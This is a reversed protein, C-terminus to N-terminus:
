CIVDLNKRYLIYVITFADDPVLVPGRVSGSAMSRLRICFRRACRLRLSDTQQYISSKTLISVTSLVSVHATPLLLSPFVVVDELLGPLM